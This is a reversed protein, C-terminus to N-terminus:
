WVPSLASSSASSSPSPARTSAVRSRRPRPTRRRPRALAAVRRVDVVPQRVAVVHGGELRQSGPSCPRCSPPPPTTPRGASWRRAGRQVGQEAHLARDRGRGVLRVAVRGAAAEVEREGALDVGVPRSASSGPARPRRGARPAPRVAPREAVVVADAEVAAPEHRLREPRRRRRAPPSWPRARGGRADEVGALEPQRRRPSRPPELRITVGRDRGPVRIPCVTRGIIVGAAHSRRGTSGATVPDSSTTSTPVDPTRAATTCGSAVTM